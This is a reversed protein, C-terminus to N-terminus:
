MHYVVSLCFNIVLFYTEEKKPLAVIVVSAGHRQCSKSCYFVWIELKIWPTDIEGICHFRQSSTLYLFIRDRFYYCWLNIINERDSSGNVKIMTIYNRAWNSRTYRKHWPKQYSSMIKAVVVRSFISWKIWIIRHTTTSIDLLHIQFTTYENLDDHHCTM